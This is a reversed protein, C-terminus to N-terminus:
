YTHIFSYQKSCRPFNHSLPCSSSFLMLPYWISHHQLLIHTLTFFLSAVQQLQPLQSEVLFLLVLATLFFTYEGQGIRINVLFSPHNQEKLCPRLLIDECWPPMNSINISSIHQSLSYLMSLFTVILSNADRLSNLLTYTLYSQFALYCLSLLFSCTGHM